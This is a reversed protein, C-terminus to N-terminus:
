ADEDQGTHARGYAVASPAQGGAQKAAGDLHTIITLYRTESENSRATQAPAAPQPPSSEGVPGDGIQV